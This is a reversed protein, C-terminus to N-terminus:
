EKYTITCLFNYATIHSIGTHTDDNWMTIHLSFRNRCLQISYNCTQTSVPM